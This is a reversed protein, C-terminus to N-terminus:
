THSLLNKSVSIVLCLAATQGEPEEGRTSNEDEKEGESETGITQTPSVWRGLSLALCM